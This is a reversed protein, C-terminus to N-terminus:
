HLPPFYYSLDNMFDVIKESIRMQLHESCVRCNLQNYSPTQIDKTKHEPLLISSLQVIHLELLLLVQISYM